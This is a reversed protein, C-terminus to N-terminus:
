GILERVTSMLREKEVPKLLYGQPKLGMVQQIKDRESMGTLFVIPTDSHEPITRIKKYITPGDEEPMVYDLLILDTSKSELFRMAIKGNIAVAVDYDDHLYEKMLKLMRADDDIVTVHKRRQVEEPKEIVIENTPKSNIYRVIKSAIVAASIPKALILAPEVATGLAFEDCNYQDGVLAYPIEKKKIWSFVGSLKEGDEREEDRMCYVFMEPEFYKLHSAMDEIRLSSTQCEIEETMNYFFEDIVVKNKGLLLVRKKM